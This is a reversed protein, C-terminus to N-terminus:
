FLMRRIQSHIFHKRFTMGKKIKMLNGNLKMKSPWPGRTPYKSYGYAVNLGAMALRLAPTQKNMPHLQGSHKNLKEDYTDMSVTMFTNPMKRNPVYGVNATQHWRIM